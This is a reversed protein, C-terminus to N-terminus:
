PRTILAVGFALTNIDDLTPTTKLQAQIRYQYQGPTILATQAKTVNFYIQQAGTPTLVVGTYTYLATAQLPQWLELTVIAGTLDPWLGASSFPIQNGDVLKYDDGVRLVLNGEPDVPLQVTISTPDLHGVIFGASGGIYTGPLQTSWPDGTAASITTNTLAVVTTPAHIASWDIGVYGATGASAAGLIKGVDVRGSADVALFATTNGMFAAVTVPAACTVAQTKITQVDAHVGVGGFATSSSGLVRGFVDGEVNGLVSGATTVASVIYALTTGSVSLIPLGGNTNVAANPIGALGFNNANTNDYAAVQYEESCPDCATATAYLLLPGLTDTDTANGAVVYWGNALETVAGAPSNFGATVKSITVILSGLKGTAPTVHDSALVLQFLLPRGASNQKLDYGM